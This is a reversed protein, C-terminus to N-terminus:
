MKRYAALVEAGNAGAKSLWEATLQEGIKRLGTRLAESPALVKMGKAALQETYWRNKDQSLKWGRAEAAKAAALVARQSPADLKDLADKRVFTMNKPIWAQTDYFHSLTTWIQTDHGTASSTMFANILGTALAQPLDAAQVRVAHAGVLQGIRETEANYTRWFLGKMDGITEIPKKSYIGQPPWPVAFLLVLKDAALRREIAPRSARWLKEAEPYSTALFPVVDIGFMPDVSANLTMLVEGIPVLDIRVAHVIEPAAFLSANAHVKIALKGGTASAVDQSFAVLNETHFNQTPYAAPLDWHTQARAAGAVSIAVAAGLLVRFAKM